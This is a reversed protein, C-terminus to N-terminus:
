FVITINEQSRLCEYAQKYMEDNGLNDFAYNLTPNYFDKDFIATDAKLYDNLFDDLAERDDYKTVKNTDMNVKYLNEQIDDMMVLVREDNIQLECVVKHM